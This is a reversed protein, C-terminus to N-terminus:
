AIALGGVFLAVAGLFWLAHTTSWRGLGAWRWIAIVWGLFGALTLLSGWPTPGPVVELQGAYLRVREGRSLTRYAMPQPQDAMLQAIHANAERLREGHPVYLGRAGLISWRISRWAMLSLDGRSALAMRRLSNLAQREFPNGPAHWAAARRFFVVASEGDGQALAAQGLSLERRSEVLVRGVLVLSLFLVGWLWPSTM